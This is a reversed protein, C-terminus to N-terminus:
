ERFETSYDSPLSTVDVEAGFWRETLSRVETTVLVVETLTVEVLVLATGRSVLPVPLEPVKLAAIPGEYAHIHLIVAAMTHAHRLM